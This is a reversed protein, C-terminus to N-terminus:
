SGRIANTSHFNLDYLNNHTLFFFTDCASALFNTQFRLFSTFYRPQTKFLLYGRPILALPQRLAGKLSATSSCSRPNADPTALRSEALSLPAALPRSAFGLISILTWKCVARIDRYNHYGERHARAFCQNVHMCTTAMHMIIIRITIEKEICRLRIMEWSLFRERIFDGILKEKWTRAAHM